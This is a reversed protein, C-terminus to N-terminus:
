YRLHLEKQTGFQKDNKEKGLQLNKFYQLTCKRCTFESYGAVKIKQWHLGFFEAVQNKQL